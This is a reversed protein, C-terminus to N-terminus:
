LIRRHFNNFTINSLCFNKKTCKCIALILSFNNLIHFIDSSSSFHRKQQISTNVILYNNFYQVQPPPRSNKCLQFLNQTTILFNHFSCFIIFLSLFLEFTDIIFFYASKFFSQYSQFLKSTIIKLLKVSKSLLM